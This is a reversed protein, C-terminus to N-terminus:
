RFNLPTDFALSVDAASAPSVGIDSHSLVFATVLHYQEDTLTGGRGLPMEEHIFTYLDGVTKGAWDAEFDEGVLAPFRETGELESGHCRACSEAFVEGGSAVATETFALSTVQPDSGAFTASIVFGFVLIGLLYKIVKM